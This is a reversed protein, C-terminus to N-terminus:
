AIDSEALYLGVFGSQIQKWIELNDPLTLLRVLQHLASGVNVVRGGVFRLWCLLVSDTDTYM